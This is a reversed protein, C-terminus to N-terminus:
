SVRAHPSRTSGQERRGKGKRVRMSGDALDVDEVRLHAVQDLRLGTDRMMVAARRAMPHRIRAICGDCEAWSPVDPPAEYVPTSPMVTRPNAPPREVVEPWARPDHPWGWRDFVASAAQYLTGASFSGLTGLHAM